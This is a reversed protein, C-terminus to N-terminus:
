KKSWVWSRAIAYRIVFVILIALAAAPVPPLNAYQVLVFLFSMDILLTGLAMALYRAGGAKKETWGKFTWRKNLEYNCVIAILSSIAFPPLYFQQGLFTVQNKFLLTLPWYTLLNVAYGIGGVIMFNLIQYKQLLSQILDKINKQQNQSEKQFPVGKSDVMVSQKENKMLM